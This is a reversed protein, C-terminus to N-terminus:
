VPKRWNPVGLVRLRLARRESVAHRAMMTAGAYRTLTKPNRALWSSALSDCCARAEEDDSELEQEQVDQEQAQERVEEEEM